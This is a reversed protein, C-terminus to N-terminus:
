FESKWESNYGVLEPELEIEKRQIASIKKVIEAAQEYSLKNLKDVEYYKKVLNMVNIKNNKCLIDISIIQVDKIREGDKVEEDMEEAAPINLQLLRRLAKGEARTDVSSVLYDKYKSSASGRSLDAAGNVTIEGDPTEVILTHVATARNENEPQPYQIIETTSSKIKGIYLMVMRRIGAVNPVGQNFEHPQLQSIIFDTWGPETIKPTETNLVVEKKAM